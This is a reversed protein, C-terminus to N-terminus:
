FHEHSLRGFRMPRGQADLFNLNGKGRRATAIETAPQRSQALAAAFAPWEGAPKQAFPAGATAFRAVNPM